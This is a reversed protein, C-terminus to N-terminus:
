LDALANEYKRNILHEVQEKREKALTKIATSQKKNHRLNLQNGTLTPLSKM